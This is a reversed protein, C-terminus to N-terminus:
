AGTHTASLSRAEEELAALGLERCTQLCTELREQAREPDREVLLRAFDHQTHALWPRAGIRENVAMAEEFHREADDVGITSAL